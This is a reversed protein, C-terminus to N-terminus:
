RGWRKPSRPSMSGRRATKEEWKLESEDLLVRLMEAYSFVGLVHGLDDIVFAQGRANSYMNEVVDLIGDSASCTIPKSHDVKLHYETCPLLLESFDSPLEHEKDMPENTDTAVQWHSVIEDFDETCMDGIFAGREDLIALFSVGDECMKYFGQLVTEHKRITTPEPLLGEDLMTQISINILESGLLTRDSIVLRAVDRPTIFGLLRRGFHCVAERAMQPEDGKAGDYDDGDNDKRDGGLKDDVLAELGGMMPAEAAAKAELPARRNWNSSSIEGYPMVALRAYPDGTLELLEIANFLPQDPSLWLNPTSIAPNVNFCEDLMVHVPTTAWELSAEAIRKLQISTHFKANAFYLGKASAITEEMTKFGKNFSVRSAVTQRGAASDRGAIMVTKSRRVSKSEGGGAPSPPEAMVSGTRSARSSRPSGGSRDSITAKRGGSGMNQSSSTRKGMKGKSAMSVRGPQTTKSRRPVGNGSMLADARPIRRRLLACFWYLLMTSDVLGECPPFAAEAESGRAEKRCVWLFPPEKGPAQQLMKLAYVCATPPEVMRPVEWWRNGALHAVEMTWLLDPDGEKTAAPGFTIIDQGSGGGGGSAALEKLMESELYDATMSRHARVTSAFARSAHEFFVDLNMGEVHEHHWNIFDQRRMPEEKAQKQFMGKVVRELIDAGLPDMGTVRTVARAMTSVMVLMTAQNLTEQGEPGHGFLQWLFETKSKFPLDRVSFLLACFMERPDMKGVKGQDFISLHMEADGLIFGFIVDFDEVSAWETRRLVSKYIDLSEYLLQMDVKRYEQKLPEPLPQSKSNNTFVTGM